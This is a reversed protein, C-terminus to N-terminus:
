GKGACVALLDYEEFYPTKTGRIKREKLSFSLQPLTGKDKYPPTVGIGKTTIELM